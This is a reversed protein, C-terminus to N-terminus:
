GFPTAVNVAWASPIIERRLLRSPSGTLAPSTSATTSLLSAAWIAESRALASANLLEVEVYVDQVSTGGEERAFFRGRFVNRAEEARGAEALSLALDFALARPLAKQGPYAALIAARESAQTSRPLSDPM